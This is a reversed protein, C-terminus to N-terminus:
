HIWKREIKQVTGSSDPALNFQWGFNGCDFRYVVTGSKVPFFPFNYGSDSTTKNHGLLAFVENTNKGILQATEFVRSAANIASVPSVPFDGNPVTKWMRKIDVTLNTSKATERALDEDFRLDKHTPPDSEAMLFYAGLLSALFGVAFVRNLVGVSM